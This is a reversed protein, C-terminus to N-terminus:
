DRDPQNQLEYSRKLRMLYEYEPEEKAEARLLYRVPYVGYSGDTGTLSVIRYCYIRDSATPELSGMQEDSIPIMFTAAQNDLDTNLVRLRMYVTQDYTLVTGQAATNGFVLAFQLEEENLPKTTMLDVIIFRNGPTAPNSTPTYVNQTAAGSFFLTKEEMSMGALDFYTEYYCIYTGAILTWGSVTEPTISIDTGVRILGLGPIEKTLTKTM